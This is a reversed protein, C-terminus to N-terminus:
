DPGPTSSVVNHSLKTLSKRCTQSKRRTRWNGGDIFSVAVIYSFYQQFHCKVGYVKFRISTSLCSPQLNFVNLLVETPRYVVKGTISITLHNFTLCM